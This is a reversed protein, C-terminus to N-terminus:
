MCGALYKSQSLIAANTQCLWAWFTNLDVRFKQM